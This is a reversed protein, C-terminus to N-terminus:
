SKNLCIEELHVETELGLPEDMYVGTGGAAVFGQLMRKGQPSLCNKSFVMYDLGDWSSTMLFEPIIKYSIKNQFLKTFLKKFLNLHSLLCQPDNPFCVGLKVDEDTTFNLMGEIPVRKKDVLLHIHSFREKSLLQALFGDHSISSTDLSICALLDEPLAAVLRHLYSMFLNMTYVNRLHRSFPTVDLMHSDIDSFAKIDGLANKKTEFLLEPTQYLDELWEQFEVMDGESWSFIRDVEATGQYLCCGLTEEKFKDFLSESFVKLSHFHLNFLGEFRMQSLKSPFDIYLDWLIFGGQEVIKRASSEALSFDLIVDSSLDVPIKCCNHESADYDAIFDALKLVFPEEKYFFSSGEFRFPSTSM